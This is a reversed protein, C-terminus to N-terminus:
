VEVRILGHEMAFVTAGARTKVDLKDYIHQIHSDVTKPSVCLQKGIEKMSLGGAVLALVQAERESLGRPWERRSPRPREGAAILVARVADTDLRGADSERQLEEAAAETSRAPRHPRPECMAQFADAVALLRAAQSQGSASMGRHYGSGDLREHHLGALRGVSGLAETRGLVRETYYAHLRVKENEADSLPGRKNWVGASVTVRGLDHVLGARRVETVPQPGLGSQLAARAALDAVRRSHERTYTSKLDTFDALIGAATELGADSVMRAPQPEAALAADWPSPADLVELVTQANECFCNVIEPDFAGGARKRATAVCAELGGVAYFTELDWALHGIRVAVPLDDHKLHHPAGAGDWREFICGLAERVGPGLRLRDAMVQAVECHGAANEALAAPGATMARVVSQVRQVPPQESAFHRLMWSLMEGRGGMVIPAMAVGTALEDGFTQTDTSSSATCGLMGLLVMYYLDGIAQPSLGLTHGLRVAVLCTRLGREMQRGTGLDTALSVAAVIEAMRHSSIAQNAREPQM